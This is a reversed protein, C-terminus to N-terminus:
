SAPHAPSRTRSAIQDVTVVSWAETGTKADLAILRGDLTGVYLRGNWFAVGRNVTDCCAKVGREGPVKPDFQWLLKGTAPDIAQVKSWASTSYMVGDVVLPTAEQGRNTDLDLYWALGLSTSTRSM